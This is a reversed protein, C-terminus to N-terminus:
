VKVSKKEEFNIIEVSISTFTMFYPDPKFPFPIISIIVGNRQTIVSGLLTDVDYKSLASTHAVKRTLSRKLQIKLLLLYIM